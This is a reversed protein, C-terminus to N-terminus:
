LRNRPQTISPETERKFLFPALVAVVAAVVIGTWGLFVNEDIDAAAITHTMDDPDVYLDVVEGPVYKREDEGGESGITEKVYYRKGEITFELPCRVCSNQDSPLETVTATVRIGNRRLDGEESYQLLLFIGLIVGIASIVVIWRTGLRCGPPHSASSYQTNPATPPTPPPLTARTPHGTISANNHHDMPEDFHLVPAQVM